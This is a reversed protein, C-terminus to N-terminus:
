GSEAGFPRPVFRAANSPPTAPATIAASTTPPTAMVRSLLEDVDLEAGTVDVAGESDDPPDDPEDPEPDCDAGVDLEAWDGAPGSPTAGVISM